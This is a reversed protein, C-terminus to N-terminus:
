RGVDTHQNYLLTQWNKSIEAFAERQQEDFTYLKSKTIEAAALYYADMGKVGYNVAIETAIPELEGFDAMIEPHMSKMYRISKRATDRNAARKMAAAVETIAIAPLTIEERSLDLSQFIYEAQEHYQEDEKFLAVWVSADIVAM